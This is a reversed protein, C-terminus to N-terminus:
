PGCDIDTDTILIKTKQKNIDSFMSNFAFSPHSPACLDREPHCWWGCWAWNWLILHDTETKHFTLATSYTCHIPTAAPCLVLVCSRAYGVTSTSSKVVSWLQDVCFVCYFYFHKPMLILFYYNQFNLLTCPTTTM